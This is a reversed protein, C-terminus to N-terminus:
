MVDDCLIPLTVFNPILNTDFTLPMSTKAALVIVDGDVSLALVSSDIREVTSGNWRGLRDIKAFRLRCLRVKSTKLSIRVNARPCEHMFESTKGM